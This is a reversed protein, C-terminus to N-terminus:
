MTLSHNSTVASTCWILCILISNKLNTVLHM